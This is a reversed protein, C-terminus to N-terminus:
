LSKLYPVKQPGAVLPESLVKARVLLVPGVDLQALERASTGLSAERLNRVLNLVVVM